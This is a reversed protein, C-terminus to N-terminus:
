RALHSIGNVIVLDITRGKVTAQSLYFPSAMFRGTSKGILSADLIGADSEERRSYPKPSILGTRAADYHQTLVDAPLVSQKLELTAAPKIKTATCSSVCIFLGFILSHVRIGEGEKRPM